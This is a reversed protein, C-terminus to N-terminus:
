GTRDMVRDIAQAIRGRSLPKMLYAAVGCAGATAKDVRASHGTCLIVPVKPQVAKIKETLVLGNMGPMTFDTIVLDFRSPNETFVALAQEPSNAATVQFGLRELTQTMIDCIATEDDVFLISAARGRAMEPGADYPVPVAKLGQVVPFYIIFASGKEPDSEVRIHANHSRVIGHVVSLGMGTGKGVEKTTFYPDFIKERIEPAIGTGSDRVALTLYTGPVIGLSAACSEEGATVAVVEVCITGGAEWMAHAANTCLNFIVQHIQTADARIAPANEEYREEIAISSPISSRLLTLSEKVVARLDVVKREADTKRTFSLLQRVVDKARMGATKIEQIHSNVPSWEPTDDLALEANGIIIGLINNFDHAVGGALTGISEMKHAQRLEEEMDKLPTIDTAIQLKVMRGDPWQIARDYNMYWKGTVPNRTQWALVDAPNGEDDLMQPIPCHGCPVEENRYSRYCCEGTFDRGFQEKMYRNMFLIERTDMDVVYVTADISDLVTLFRQHSETFAKEAVRRDSIDRGIAIIYKPHGARNRIVSANFEMPIGEGDRTYLDIEISGAGKEKVMDVFALARDQDGPAICTRIVRMRAVAENAYGTRLTFARNWRIARGTDPDFLIFVDQIANLATETFAKEERLDIESQRRETIDEFICHTQKFNGAMDRGIKGTFSVLVTDGDKKVMEFEVGLIEGVVKFKPFNERFHDQWDPHLFQGFNQGLVEDRTYGLVNLWAPNVEVLSGTKDLSQYAMPVREYLMRFREQSEKLADETCTHRALTDELERVRAELTEYSPKRTM